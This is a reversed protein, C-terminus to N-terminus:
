KPSQAPLAAKIQDLMADTVSDFSLSSVRDRIEHCRQNRKIEAKQEQIKADTSDDWIVLKRKSYGEGTEIARWETQYTSPGWPRWQQRSGRLTFNGSKHVKDVFAERVDAHYVSSSMIAVRAGPIFPSEQTM